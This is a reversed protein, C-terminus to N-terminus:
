SLILESVFPPPDLKTMEVNVTSIDLLFELDTINGFYSLILCNIEHPLGLLPICRKYVVERKYEIYKAWNDTFQLTSFPGKGMIVTLADPCTLFGCEDIKLKRINPLDLSQEGHNCIELSDVKSHSICELLLQNDPYDQLDIALGRISSKSLFEMLDVQDCNSSQISLQRISVPVNTLDTQITSNDIILTTLSPIDELLPLQTGLTRLIVIDSNYLAETLNRMSEDSIGTLKLTLVKINTLQVKGIRSVDLDLHIINSIDFNLEGTVSLKNVKNRAFFHALYKQNYNLVPGHIAVFDFDKEIM